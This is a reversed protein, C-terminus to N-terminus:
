IIIKQFIVVFDDNLVRETRKEQIRRRKSNKSNRPGGFVNKIEEEREREEKM